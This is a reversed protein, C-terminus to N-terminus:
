AAQATNSLGLLYQEIQAHVSSFDDYGLWLGIGHQATGAVHRRRWASDRLHQELACGNRALVLGGQELTELAMPLDPLADGACGVLEYGQEIAQRALLGKDIGHDRDHFPTFQWQADTINHVHVGPRLTPNALEYVHSVFPINLGARRLFVEAIQQVGNTIGIPVVGHAVLLKILPKIGDVIEFQCTRAFDILQAMCSNEMIDNYGFEVLEGISIEGRKYANTRETWVLNFTTNRSGFREMFSMFSDEWITRDFDFLWIKTRPAGISLTDSWISDCSSM